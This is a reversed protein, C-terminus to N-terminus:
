NVDWWVKVSMSNSGGIADIAAATNTANLIVENNPYPMRVPITSEDLPQGEKTPAVM